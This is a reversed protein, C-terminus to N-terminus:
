EISHLVWVGNELSFNAQHKTSLKNGPNHAINQLADSMGDLNVAETFTAEKATTVGPLTEDQIDQIDKAKLHNAALSVVVVSYNADTASDPRWQIADGGALLKFAKKGDPTLTYDAWYRNPYVRTLEWYKATIGQGVGLKNVAISAGVAPTQDYKAQILALANAQTLEPASKCGTVLAGASLLAAVGLLFLNRANKVKGGYVAYFHYL